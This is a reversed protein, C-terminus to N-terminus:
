LRKRRYCVYIGIGSITLPVIGVLVVTWAYAEFTTIDLAESAFVKFDIDLPVLKKAMQSVLYNLIDRNGYANSDIYDQDVYGASSAFLYTNLQSQTLTDTKTQRTLVAIPYAGAIDGNTTCLKSSAYSNLVVGTERSNQAEFIRKYAVANKVITSPQSDLQRLSLHPSSAFSDTVTYSAVLSLGDLSVSHEDDKVQGDDIGIGWEELWQKLGTLSKQHEPSLFVMANGGLDSMFRGLKDLENVGGDTGQFDYVPDNIIVVKANGDIEETRLDITRVDFGADIMLNYLANPEGDSDLVSEGHGTTFYCIPYDTCLSMIYSTFRREGNFAYVDGSESDFTYFNDYTVLRFSESMNSEIIVNTTYLSTGLQSTYIEALDPHTIVDLYEIKINNPYAKKYSEACKYVYYGSSNDLVRDKDQCFIIKIEVDETLLEDLYKESKDTIGYYQEGTLDLYWGYSYALAYVVANFIIVLAVFAVTLGVALSGYKFKRDSFLSKKKTNMLIMM